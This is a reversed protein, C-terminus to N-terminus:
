EPLSRTWKPIFATRDPICFFSHLLFLLVIQPIKQMPSACVCVMYIINCRSKIQIQYINPQQRRKNLEFLFGFYFEPMYCFVQLVQFIETWQGSSLIVADGKGKAQLGIDCYEQPHIRLLSKIDTNKTPSCFRRCQVDARGLCLKLAKSSWQSWSMQCSHAAQRQNWEELCSSKFGSANLKALKM